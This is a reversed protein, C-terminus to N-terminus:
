IVQPQGTKKNVRFMVEKGDVVGAEPNTYEAANLLADGQGQTLLGSRVDASVKGADSFPTAKEPSLGLAASSQASLGQAMEEIEDEDVEDWGYEQESLKTVFDPFNKEVFEKRQGKPVGLVQKAGALVKKAAVQDMQVKNASQEWNFRSAQRQEEAAARGEANQLATMRMGSEEEARKLARGEIFSDVPTFNQQMAAINLAM